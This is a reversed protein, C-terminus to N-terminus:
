EHVRIKRDQKYGVEEFHGIKRFGLREHLKISGENPLSIGGIMSHLSTARVSDILATYLKTGFGHGTHQVDLYITSEVSFRYACRGQWESTYAYGFIQGSSEAVLWPLPIAAMAAIREAIDDADVPDTEFTVCTNSVYHNYIRALDDADGETASRILTEM